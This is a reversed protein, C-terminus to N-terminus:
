MRRGRQVRAAGPLTGKTTEAPAKRIAIAIALEGRVHLLERLDAGLERARQEWQKAKNEAPLARWTAALQRARERQTRTAMIERQVAELQRWTESRRAPM